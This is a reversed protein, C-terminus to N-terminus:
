WAFYKVIGLGQGQQGEGERQQEAQQGEGERQLESQQEKEDEKRQQLWFKRVHKGVHNEALKGANVLSKLMSLFVNIGIPPVTKESGIAYDRVSYQVLQAANSNSISSNTNPEILELTSNDYWGSSYQENLADFMYVVRKSVSAPLNRISTSELLQQMHHQRGKSTQQRQLQQQRKEVEADREAKQVEKAQEINARTPQGTQEAVRVEGAPQQQQQQQQMICNRRYESEPLLIMRQFLKSSM